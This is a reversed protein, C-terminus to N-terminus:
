KQCWGWRRASVEQHLRQRHGQADMLRDYREVLPFSRDFVKHVKSKAPKLKMAEALAMCFGENLVQPRARAEGFIGHHYLTPYNGFAADKLELGCNPRLM